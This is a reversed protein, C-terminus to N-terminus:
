APAEESAVGAPPDSGGEQLVMIVRERKSLDGVLRRLPLPLERVLTPTVFIDKERAMEPRDFLNIVELDYRGALYKECLSKTTSIATMSLPTMATVYLRLIVSQGRSQALLREFDATTGAITEETMAAEKETSGELIPISGRRRPSTRRRTAGTRTM